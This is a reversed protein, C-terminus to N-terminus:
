EATLPQIFVKNSKPNRQMKNGFKELYKSHINTDMQRMYITRTKDFPKYPPRFDKVQYEEEKLM